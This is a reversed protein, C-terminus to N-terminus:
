QTIVGKNLLFPYHQINHMQYFIDGNLAQFEIKPALQKIANFGAKSGVNVVICLAGTAALKTTNLKLWRKSHKDDGLVCIARPIITTNNNLKRSRIKGLSLMTSIVPFQGISQKNYRPINKINSSINKTIAELNPKQFAYFQQANITNGNDYIIVPSAQALGTTYNLTLLIFITIKISM